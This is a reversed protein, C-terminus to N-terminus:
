DTTLSDTLVRYGTYEGVLNHDRHIEPLPNPVALEEIVYDLKDIDKNQKM